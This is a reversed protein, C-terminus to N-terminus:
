PERELDKELYLAGAIPNPRYPAIEEFGCARYLAIAADMGPVTDLRMARYGRSRAERLLAAVLLRGLGSGRAEPRVYLRKMECMGPEIPRLAVCGMTLAGESALLLAGDPPAYAGPLGDLEHQFDQFSLDFPLSRAYESFLERARALDEPWSAPRIEM